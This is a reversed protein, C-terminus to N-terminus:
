DGRAYNEMWFRAIDKPLVNWYKDRYKSKIYGLFEEYYASPYEDIGFERGNFNLYDPHVIMLAMGGKEAIWDLKRKWIDPSKEQMLVFLTFDQPLTYPLEVYGRKKGNGSVWFPFISRIGEPQPEFPDTDFTSADYEIDLEHIWELNCHMSPSRFGAAKWEKLYQNIRQAQQDFIKKSTYLKGDHTLGHVGVEFGNNVLYHRLEPLDKYGEAVFNFSSIFGLRKEIKILNDCKEHGRGSEIDHTLVLAFQKKAPWGKWGDPVKGAKEDIPWVSKYLFRKISVGKRRLMIQLKRPIFPKISYYINNKYSSM